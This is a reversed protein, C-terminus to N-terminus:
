CSKDGLAIRHRILGDYMDFFNVFHAVVPFTYDAFYRLM